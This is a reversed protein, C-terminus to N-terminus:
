TCHPTDKFECFQCSYRNKIAMGRQMSKVMSIVMKNAKEVAKPGASVPVIAISSKLKANRKLLIFATQVDKSAKGTKKMWYNKYLILQAHVNFDQKKDRSWGKPGATKWDLIVHKGNPLEIVSDIFGKFKGFEVDEIDEYLNHEASISKWGPYQSNLFIPLAELSTRASKAWSEFKEHKYDWGQAKARLTQSSIYEPTDYGKEDWVSKLNAELIDLDIPKGNLFDEM